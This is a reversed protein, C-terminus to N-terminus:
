VQGGHRINFGFDSVRFQFSFAVLHFSLLLLIDKANKCENRVKRSVIRLRFDSARLPIGVMFLLRYVVFKLYM